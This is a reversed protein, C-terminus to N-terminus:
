EDRGQWTRTSLAVYAADSMPTGDPTGEATRKAYDSDAKRNVDARTSLEWLSLGGPVKVTPASARVTGDWDSGFVGVGAAFGLSVLGPATELILRRVLRPLDSLVGEAKGWAALDDREALGLRAM